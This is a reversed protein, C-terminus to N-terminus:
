RYREVVAIIDDMTSNIIETISHMAQDKPGVMIATWIIRPTSPVNQVM